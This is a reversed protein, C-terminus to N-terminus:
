YNTVNENAQDFDGSQLSNLNVNENSDNTNTKPTV